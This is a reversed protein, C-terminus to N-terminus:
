PRFTLKLSLILMSFPKWFNVFIGADDLEELPCLCVFFVVARPIPEFSTHQKKQQEFPHKWFYPYGSISPKYHFGRYFNIIQLTGRIKPFVWVTKLWSKTKLTDINEYM